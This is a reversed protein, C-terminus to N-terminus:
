PEEDSTQDGAPMTAENTPEASEGPAEDLGDSSADVEPSSLYRAEEFFFRYDENGPSLELAKAYYDAANLYDGQDFALRGLWAWADEYAPNQAVAEEFAARAGAYDALGYRRLGERMATAAATGFRAQDQAVSLHQLARQHTPERALLAEWYAIAQPTQDLEAYVRAVWDLATVFDSNASVAAQFQELAGALDNNQYQILGAHYAQAADFGYASQDAAVNLFYPARTDDPDLEQVRLWHTRAVDPQGLELALRGAWAHAELFDAGSRAAHEFQTLADQHTGESYAHLGSHFADSAEIGYRLQQEARNLYYQAAEDDPHVTLLKQWYPQADAPEGKEFYIRGLWTLAEASTPNLDHVQRYYGLAGDLDGVAYRTYGLENGARSLQTLADDDFLGGADLYRQWFEWARINWRLYSYTEAMFRLVEPHEPALELAQEGQRLAERWLPQDIHNTVNAYQAKAEKATSQAQELLAEARPPLSTTQASAVSTVMLSLLLFMGFLFPVLHHQSFRLPISFLAAGRQKSM